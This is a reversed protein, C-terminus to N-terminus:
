PCCRWRLRGPMSAWCWRWAESCEIVFVPYALVGPLGISQFFQATGPLTFALLKLLAHAVWMTGLGVRLITIRLGTSRQVHNSTM